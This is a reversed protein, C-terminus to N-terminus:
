GRENGHQYYGKGKGSYRSEDFRQRQRRGLVLFRCCDCPAADRRERRVVLARWWGHCTRDRFCADVDVGASTREGLVGFWGSQQRGSERHPAHEASLNRGKARSTHDVAYKAIPFQAVVRLQPQTKM